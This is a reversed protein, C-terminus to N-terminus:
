PAPNQPPEIVVLQHNEVDYQYQYGGPLQKLRINNAKIIETMFEEHTAPYRDHEAKYLGIAQEIQAKAIQEVMPRYAELGGTIPNTIRVKSDSVKNGANPDFKGIDQTDKNIVNNPGKKVQDQLSQMCGLSLLAAAIVTFWCRFM